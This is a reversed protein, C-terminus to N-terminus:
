RSTPGPSVRDRVRDRNQQFLQLLQHDMAEALAVARGYAELAAQLEGGKELAEGLCDHSNPSDPYTAALLGFVGTAGRTDGQELLRYGLETLGGEPPAIPQRFRDSVRRYHAEIAAPDTIGDPLQLDTFLVELGRQIGRHPTSMHDEGKLQEFSWVLGKPADSQLFAVLADKSETMPGPEDGLALYAFRELTTDGKWRERANRLVLQDGWGLSPSIAIHADFLDPHSVLAHTAFLGAFSHGVLIRYPRTRYRQEVAPILETGLFRAFADAGGSEALRPDRSPTLDRTRRTNVVGVVIMPPIRGIEALYAVLGVVHQFQVEADLLYLVPFRSEAEAYGPPTHVLFTRTEDLVDSTLIERTGNTLMRQIRDTPPDPPATKQEGPQSASPNKPQEPPTGHSCAGAFALAPGTFLAALTRRYRWPGGM